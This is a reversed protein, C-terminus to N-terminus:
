AIRVYYRMITRCASMYCLRIPDDSFLQKDSPFFQTTNIILGTYPVIFLLRKKINRGSKKILLIRCFFGALNKFIWELLARM